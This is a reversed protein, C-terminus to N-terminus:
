SEGIQSQLNAIKEKQLSIIMDKDEIMKELEAVRSNSEASKDIKEGIFLLEDTTVKFLQSLKIIVEVNANYGGKLRGKEIKQYNQPVMGLLESIARQTLNHKRRLHSLKTPFKKQWNDFAQSLQDANM